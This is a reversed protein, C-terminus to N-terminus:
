STSARTNSYAGHNADHMVNFGVSAIAFGWVVCLLLNVPTSFGGLLLLLYAALWWVLMVATKGYMEPVDRGTLKNERLYAKM